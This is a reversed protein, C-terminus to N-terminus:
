GFVSGAVEAELGFYIMALAALDFSTHAAVLPWITPKRWYVFGFVLGVVFAQTAGWIGQSVLHAAAFVASSLGVIFIGAGAGGGLLKRLREFLFGRFVFEEGFGAVFMAWIALPLLHLNSQLHQYATNIAPAGLLPMVISKM